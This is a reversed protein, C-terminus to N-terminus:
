KLIELAKDLQPDRDQNYDEETLKIEVDPAIGENNIKKGSPTYWYATTLKLASGDELPILEQISGKGFTKEGVLIAKKYDQFAGAIIEAGSATGHNILVVTELYGLSPNNQGRYEKTQGSGDKSTTIIKDGLWFSAIEVASDLYGGPNNRLDLIIARPNKLLIEKSAALFERYTENNFQSIKLYVIGPKKMQWTVTKIKIKARTIEFEKPKPWNKRSITLTVKTGRKGRILNAAQETSLGVTPLSDIKEIVDGARLGALDAPTGPLPAIVTLQNNKVGIEVGIGEFSSSMEEQFKQNAEPTLFVSYPDKLADIMGKLAGYFLDRDSVPQNAFKTKAFYWTQWFLNADPPRKFIKQWTPDRSLDALKEIILNRDLFVGLLIGALFIAISLLVLRIKNKKNM